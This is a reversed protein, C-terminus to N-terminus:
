LDIASVNLPISQLILGLHSVKTGKLCANLVQVNLFSPDRVFFREIKGEQLEVYMMLEGASSEVYSYYEGDMLTGILFALSEKVTLRKMLRLSTFIETIRINFRSFTDGAEEMNIHFGNKQFFESKERRDLSINSSRAMIGVLGYDLVINRSLQGLLLTEELVKDRKEIWREFSLLEKELEYLYSNIEDNNFLKNEFTVGSFGFRSGTVRKMIERGQHAFTAFFKAGEDFQVLQCLVSLDTLHNIVRELELLLVHGKEIVEPLEKQSAQVAIDTFAKQYAITQSAAIREIIERAEFFDIGEVMKEIARYKYFTMMEFHLITEDRDYLQFLSAELHYPQTPGIIVGYDANLAPPNMEHYALSQQQFSKRMPYINKPFSEHHVLPREDTAYLMSIGFDDSIKREFWVASPYEDSISILAPNRKNLREKIIREDYVTIIEFFKEKEKAFRAILRM